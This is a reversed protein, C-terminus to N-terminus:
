VAEERITALTRLLADNEFPKQMVACGGALIRQTVEASVDGTLFVTRFALHPQIAKAISHLVDGRADPLWYDVVLLDVWEMALLGHAVEATAAVLVNYGARTLLSKLVTRISPDDDVVLVRWAASSPNVDNVVVIAITAYAPRPSVLSCDVSVVVWWRTTLRHKTLV